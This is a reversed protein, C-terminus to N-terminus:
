KMYEDHLEFCDCQFVKDVHLKLDMMDDKALKRGQASVLYMILIGGLAVPPLWLGWLEKKLTWQSMSLTLGVFGIFGFFGYIFMFMTCINPAPGILCRVLSPGKEVEQEVSIDLFPSWYHRLERGHSLIFHNYSKTLSIGENEKTYQSLRESIQSSDLDLVFKFRPRFTPTTSM